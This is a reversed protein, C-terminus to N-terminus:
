PTWRRLRPSGAVWGVWYATRQGARLLCFSARRRVPLGLEAYDRWCGALDSALNSPSPLMPSLEHIWSM